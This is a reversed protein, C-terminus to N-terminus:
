SLIITSQDLGTRLFRNRSSAEKDAQEVVSRSTINEIDEGVYLMEYDKFTKKLLDGDDDRVRYTFLPNIKDVTYVDTSYLVEGKEFM